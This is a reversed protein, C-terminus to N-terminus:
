SKESLRKEKLQALYSPYKKDMDNTLMIIMIATIFCAPLVVNINRLGSVVAPTQTAADEVYGIADLLFGMVATGIGDGIKRTLTVGAFSMSEVRVGTTLEGYDVTEAVMPQLCGMFLSIGVGYICLGTCMVAFVSDQLVIRLLLGVLAIGMGLASTKVKGLKDAINKAFISAVFMGAMMVLSTVMSLLTNNYKATIYFLMVGTILSYSGGYFLYSLVYKRYYKNLCLTKVSAIVNVKKVTGEDVKEKTGFFAILTSVLVVASFGAIVTAFTKWLNTSSDLFSPILMPPLMCGITEIVSRSRQLRMRDSSDDSMRMMLTQIPIEVMTLLTETGIYTVTAWVMKMTESMGQPIAFMGTFLLSLPLAAFLLYPRTKGFRSHTNEIIGGMLPDNVGDWIKAFMMMIGIKTANLGAVTVYYYMLYSSMILSICQRGLGGMGYSLVSVTSLRDPNKKRM